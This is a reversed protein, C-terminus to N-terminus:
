LIPDKTLNQLLKLIRKTIYKIKEKRKNGAKDVLLTLQHLISHMASPRADTPTTESCAGGGGNVISESLIFVKILMCVLVLSTPPTM